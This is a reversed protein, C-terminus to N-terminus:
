RPRTVRREIVKVGSFPINTFTFDRLYRSGDQWLLNQSSLSEALEGRDALSLHRSSSWPPSTNLNPSIFHKSAAKFM